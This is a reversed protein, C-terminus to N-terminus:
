AKAEIYLKGARGRNLPKVPLTFHFESGRNLESTFWIRGGLLEVIERCLSLGLGVGGASRTYSSDVQYFRTFIKSQNNKAIGIGTDRVAFHVNNGDKSVNVTIKGKQTYKVSNNILNMLIQTLREKDTNIRPIGKALNYESDLGKAKMQVSMETKVTDIIQGVDVESIDFRLANLDIRSLDLVDNVLKALRTTEKDMIKLYKGRKEPDGAIEPNQLLQSFGHISTMPTKLEHAAISMFENKKVDTEKLEKLNEKLKNHASILEKNLEESDEMMNLIASKGEQLERVKEELEKKSAEVEKAGRSIEDRSKKLDSAMQNLTSALAGLEDKSSVAVRTDLQGKGIRESADQLRMVSVSISYAVITGAISLFVFVWVSIFIRELSADTMKQIGRLAAKYEGSEKLVAADISDLLGKRSEELSLHADFWERDTANERSKLATINGSSEIFAQWNKAIGDRLGSEDPFYAEVFSAYNRFSDGFADKAESIKDHECKEEEPALPNESHYSIELTSSFVSLASSKMDELSIIMPATKESVFFVADYSATMNKLSVYGVYGLLLTMVLFASVLKFLLKM